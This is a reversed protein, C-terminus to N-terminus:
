SSGGAADTAYKLTVTTGEGPRSNVSLKAGVVDAREYMIDLGHGHSRETDFGLGDDRITLVLGDPARELGVWVRTPNAHKAVNALAERAIQLIQLKVPPTLAHGAEALSMQVSMGTDRSWQGAALALSTGLPESTAIEHADDLYDRVALYAREVMSGIDMVDQATIFGTPSTAKEEARRLKLSLFALTQAVNDHVERRLRHREGQISESRVRRQWNLNALFPLYAILLCVALYMLSFALYNGSLIWPLGGIELGSVLYAGSVALGSAVAVALASRLGMLLSASLIPALSYILFASDLGDTLLVLTVALVVDSALIAINTKPRHSAPNFRWAVRAMNHVGVSGILLAQGIPPEDGLNLFFALGAGMAFTLFRFVALAQFVVSVYGETSQPSGGAVNLDRYLLLRNVGPLSDAMAKLGSGAGKVLWGASAMM